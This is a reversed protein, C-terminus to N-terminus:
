ARQRYALSNNREVETKVINKLEYNEQMLEFIIDNLQEVTKAADQGKIIASKGLAAKEGNAGHCGVCKAYAAAGDAMLLTSGAFLMAIAIKKM